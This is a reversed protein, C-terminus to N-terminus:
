LRSTHIGLSSPPSQHESAESFVGLKQPREMGRVKRDCRTCLSAMRGPLDHQRPTGQRLDRLQTRRTPPVQLPLRHTEMTGGVAFDSSDAEIKFKGADLPTHLITADSIANKLTDFAEQHRPLWGWPTNGTLEYLPRAIRSFDKVFKRYFNVFGLFRQLDKKKSPTEWSRIAEVKKEEMQVDGGGVVMGLYNVSEKEFECKEPKLYLKHLRLKQLVRAVLTRHEDLDNSFILIDDLYIVVHGERIEEAFIKNMMVQFTAPSNTLGFFMVLPEFLGRNTKFAAKWKDRPRIHVNNYGWRVDFKTFIMANKLKDILDSILPLPYKNKIM